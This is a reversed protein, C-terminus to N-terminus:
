YGKKVDPAIIGRAFESAIKDIETGPDDHTRSYLVMGERCRPCTIPKKKFWSDQESRSIPIAYRIRAACEKTPCIYVKIVGTYSCKNDHVINGYIDYVKKTDVDYLKKSSEVYNVDAIVLKPIERFSLNTISCKEVDSRM